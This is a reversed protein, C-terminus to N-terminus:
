MNAVARLNIGEQESQAKLLECCVAASKPEAFLFGQAHRCGLRRLTELQAWGEVGEAVVKIRLHQGMALIAGVIAYDSTDTVLDRVFSRDIKLSDVPWRKLYSFSSYGTGFDDIAVHIGMARLNTVSDDCDNHGDVRKSLAGESFEIQLLKPEIANVRTLAGIMGCLDGSHLQEASVNVAVPVLTAGAARWKVMDAVVRRLVFEGVAVILGAEEAVPIFQAPPVFVGDITKWRVLAEVATVHRTDLEILPQYFVDLEQGELAARLRTEITTRESSKRGMIPNFIQYNNRGRGKAQYMATDAHRLLAGMDDGDRPFLSVGISVSTALPKDDIVIPAALSKTIRAASERVQTSGQINTLIVVFEDGGMRVVVDHSRVADRVRLAVVQLLQDGTAHGLSDNVHKFRDLDLFLVALPRQQQRAENMAQPLWQNLFLRNPLGTLQDHHALRDLHQQKEILQVEIQRRAAIGHEAQAIFQQHRTEAEAIRLRLERARCSLRFTWASVALLSITSVIAFLGIM